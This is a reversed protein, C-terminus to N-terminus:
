LNEKNLKEKNRKLKNVILKKFHPHRKEVFAKVGEKCDEKMLNESMTRCGLEYAQDLSEM